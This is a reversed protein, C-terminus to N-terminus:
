PGRYGSGPRSAKIHRARELFFEGAPQDRQGLRALEVQEGVHEFPAPRARQAARQDADMVRGVRRGDLGPEFAADGAAEVIEDQERALAERRSSPKAARAPRRSAKTCASAPRRL